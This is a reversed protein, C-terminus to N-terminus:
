NRLARICGRAATSPKARSRSTEALRSAQVDPLCMSLDIARARYDYKYGYHQVRRKLDTLWPERDIRELLEQEEAATIFDPLYLLGTVGNPQVSMTHQASVSAAM